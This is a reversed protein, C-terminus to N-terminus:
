LKNIDVKVLRKNGKIAMVAQNSNLELCLLQDLDETDLMKFKSHNIVGMSGNHGTVITHEWQVWSFESSQTFMKALSRDWMLAEPDQKEIDQYPDCGAHVFLYKDLCYFAPLESYFKWHSYPIMVELRNRPYELPDIEIGAHALAYGQMTAYGGNHMWMRFSIERDQYSLNKNPFRNFSKLFMQEHNGMIPHFQNPYAEKLKILLDIVDMSYINRDIYDGLMILHDKGGDSRRLPLIQKLIKKLLTINRHVDPIVYYCNKESPRWKSM